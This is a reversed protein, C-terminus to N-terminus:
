SLAGLLLAALIGSHMHLELLAVSNFFICFYNSSLLVSLVSSGVLTPFCSSHSDLYTMPIGLFLLSHLLLHLKSSTFKGLAIDPLEPFEHLIFVLLIVALFFM